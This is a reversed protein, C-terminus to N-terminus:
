GLAELEHLVSRGQDVVNVDEWFAAPLATEALPFYPGALGWTGDQKRPRVPLAIATTSQHNRKFEALITRLAPDDERFLGRQLGNVAIVIVGDTCGRLQRSEVKLKRRIRDYPDLGDRPVRLYVWHTDHGRKYDIEGILNLKSREVETLCSAMTWQDLDPREHPQAARASATGFDFPMTVAARDGSAFARVIAGVARHTEKRLVRLNVPEGDARPTIVIEVAIHGHVTTKRLASKLSHQLWGNLAMLDSRFPDAPFGSTEVVYERRGLSVACDAVGHKTLPALRVSAGTGSFKWAIDLELMTAEYKSPDRLSTITQMLQPDERFHLLFGALSCVEVICLETQGNLAFYLPHVDATTREPLDAREAEEDIWASGFTSCVMAHAHLATQPSIGLQPAITYAAAYWHDFM